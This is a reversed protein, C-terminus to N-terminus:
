LLCEYIICLWGDEIFGLGFASVHLGLASCHLLSHRLFAGRVSDWGLLRDRAVSGHVLFGFMRRLGGELGCGMWPTSGVDVVLQFFVVSDM